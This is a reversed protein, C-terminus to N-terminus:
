VVFTDGGLELEAVSLCVELVCLCSYGPLSTEYGKLLSLLMVLDTEIHLILDNM